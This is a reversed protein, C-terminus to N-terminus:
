EGELQHKVHIMSVCLEKPAEAALVAVLLTLPETKSDTQLIFATRLLQGQVGRTTV